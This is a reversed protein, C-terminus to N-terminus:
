ADFRDLHGGEDASVEVGIFVPPTLTGPHAEPVRSRLAALRVPQRTQLYTMSAGVPGLAVHFESPASDLNQTWSQSSDGTLFGAIRKRSAGGKLGLRRQVAAFLDPAHEARLEGVRQWGPGPGEPTPSLAPAQENTWAWVHFAM